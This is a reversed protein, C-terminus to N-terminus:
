RIQDLVRGHQGRRGYRAPGRCRRWTAGAADHPSGRSTRGRLTARRAAFRSLAIARTCRAVSSGRGRIFFVVALVLGVVFLIWAINAATGAIGSFGLVGAILAVVLFILAYYLM